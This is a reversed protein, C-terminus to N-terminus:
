SKIWEISDEAGCDNCITYDFTSHLEWERTIENWAAYADKRVDTSGCDGCVPHSPNQLEDVYEDWLDDVQKEINEIEVDFRERTFPYCLVEGEIEADSGEVISGLKVGKGHVQQIWLGASTNKYVAREFQIWTDVGYIDFLDQESNIM